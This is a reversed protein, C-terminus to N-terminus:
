SVLLVRELQRVDFCPGNEGVPWRGLAGDVVHGGEGEARVAAEEGNAISTTANEEVTEIMEAARLTCGDGKENKEQGDQGYM